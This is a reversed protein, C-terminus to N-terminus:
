CRIPTEKVISLAEDITMILQLLHHHIEEGPEKFYPLRCNICITNYANNIAYCETCIKYNEPHSYIDQIVTQM